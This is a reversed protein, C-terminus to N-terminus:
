VGTLQLLKQYIQQRSVQIRILQQQILEEERGKSEYELLLQTIRERLHTQVEGRRRELEARAAELEAQKVELDAIAIRDRQV